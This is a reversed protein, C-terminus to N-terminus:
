SLTEWPFQKKASWKHLVMEHWKYNEAVSAVSAVSAESAESAESRFYCAFIPKIVLYAKLEFWIKLIERKLYSIQKKGVM